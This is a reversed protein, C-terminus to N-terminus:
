PHFTACHNSKQSAGVGRINSRARPADCFDEQVSGRDAAGVIPTTCSRHPLEYLEGGRHPAPDLAFRHGNPALLTSQAHHLLVCALELM